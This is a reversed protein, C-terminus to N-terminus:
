SMEGEPPRAHRSPWELLCPVPFLLCLDDCSAREQETVAEGSKVELKLRRCGTKRVETM